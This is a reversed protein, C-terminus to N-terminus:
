HKAKRLSLKLQSGEEQAHVMTEEKNAHKMLKQQVSSMEFLLRSLELFSIEIRGM